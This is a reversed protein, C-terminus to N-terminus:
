GQSILSSQPFSRLDDEVDPSLVHGNDKARRFVDRHFRIVDTLNGDTVEEIALPPERDAADPDFGVPWKIWIRRSEPERPIGPSHERVARLTRWIETARELTLFTMDVRIDGPQPGDMKELGYVIARAAARSEASGLNYNGPKPGQATAPLESPSQKTKMLNSRM